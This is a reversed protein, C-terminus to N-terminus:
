NFFELNFVTQNPRKHAYKCGKKLANVRSYLNFM